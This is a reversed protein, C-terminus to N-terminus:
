LAVVLACEVDTRIVALVDCIYAENVRIRWPLLATQRVLAFARLSKRQEFSKLRRHAVTRFRLGVHVSCLQESVRPGQADRYRSTQAESCPPREAGRRRQGQLNNTDESPVDHVM